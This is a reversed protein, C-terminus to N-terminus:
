SPEALLHQIRNTTSPFIQPGQQYVMQFSDESIEIYLSPIVATCKFGMDKFFKLTHYNTERIDAYIFKPGTCYLKEILRQVMRTALGKRQYEKKVCLNHITFSKKYHDRNYVIYGYLTNLPYDRLMWCTTYPEALVDQWDKKTWPYPFNHQEAEILDTPISKFRSLHRFGPNM